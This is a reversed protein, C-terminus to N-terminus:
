DYMRGFFLVKGIASGRQKSLLAVMGIFYLQVTHLSILSSIIGYGESICNNLHELTHRSAHKAFDKTKGM